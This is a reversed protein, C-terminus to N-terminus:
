ERHGCLCESFFRILDSQFRDITYFRLFREHGAIGCASAFERNYWFEEICRALGRASGPSFCLGTIRDQIIEAIGGHNAGIVPRFSAMSEVAVLGFSEPVRSPVVVVDCWEYLAATDTVFGLMEIQNAMNGTAIREKLERAWSSRGFSDGAIKVDINQRIGDPLFNLADILLDQGKAKSLRGIILIKLRDGKMQKPGSKAGFQPNVGNPVINAMSADICAFAAATSKSNFIIKVKTWVLLDAFLRRLLGSPIEHIHVVCQAKSWRAAILHDLVVITNIYVVDYSNMTRLANWVYLPLLITRFILGIWGYYRRLVWIPKVSVNIGLSNIANVLPGRRPVIVDVRSYRNSRKIAMLAEAFVRDSGYMEASQHIALMNNARDGTM